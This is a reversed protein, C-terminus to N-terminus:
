RWLDADITRLGELTKDFAKGEAETWTAYTELRARRDEVDFARDLTELVLANISKGTKKSAADLRKGLRASVNRITLQRM